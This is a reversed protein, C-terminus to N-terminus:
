MLGTILLANIKQLGRTGARDPAMRKKLQGAAIPFRTHLILFIVILLKKEPLLNILLYNVMQM